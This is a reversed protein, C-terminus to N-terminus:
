RFDRREFVVSALALATAAYAGGYLAALWTSAPVPSRYIVESNLSLASLNPLAYWILKPLWTNGAQWLNLM